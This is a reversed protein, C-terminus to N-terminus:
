ATAGVPKGCSPCWNFGPQLATGCSACMPVLQYQCSPCFRFGPNVVTGCKPCPAQLPQRVFFYLIFGLANPIFIVLLTWLTRNMGRRKSDANVYGILLIFMALLMGTFFGMIVRFAFPPPNHEHSLMFVHWVWQMCLFAAGSLVVAIAPILRFEEALDFRPKDWKPAVNTSM